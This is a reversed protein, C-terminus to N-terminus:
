PLPNKVFAEKVKKSFLLYSSVILNFVFGFLYFFNGYEGSVILMLTFIVSLGSAIIIIWRAWNRGKWLFLSILFIIVSIIILIIGIVISFDKMVNFILGSFQNLISSSGLSSIGITLMIGISLIIIGIVFLFATLLYGLISILKVGKPVLPKLLPPNSLNQANRLLENLNANSNDM